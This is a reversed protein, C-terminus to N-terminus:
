ASPNGVENKYKEALVLLQKIESIMLEAEELTILNNSKLLKYTTSVILLYNQLTKLIKLVSQPDDIKKKTLASLDEKFFKFFFAKMKIKDNVMFNKKFQIHNYLIKLQIIM